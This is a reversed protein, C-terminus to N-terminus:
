AAPAAVAEAATEEERREGSAWLATALAGILWFPLFYQESLFLASTFAIVLSVRLAQAYGPLGDGRRVAITLRRFTLGLYALFLIAAVVGLEAAVDLYADHAVALTPTGDRPGTLRPYYIRFNGPGVGLLPHDAALRAAVSWAQLRTTVNEQAVRNKLLLAHQFRQPNTHIVIATSVAAILVGALTLRVRRRDVALLFLLGAGIGVFSGRTLSLLLAAFVVGVMALVLPALVRRGGVLWFMLPLSTALLFGFDDGSVYPLSAISDRGTFYRDLGLGAAITASIALSWAIQRQLLPTPELQSIVFYVAVFSAYRGAVTPAISGDLAQTASVLAIGLISLVIWQEHELFLRRRTVVVHLAFSAFALAGAARSVSFAGSTAFAGELPGTAVLVMVAVDVRALMVGVVLLAAAGLLTATPRVAAAAGTLAVALAIGAALALSAGDPAPTRLRLAVGAGPRTM